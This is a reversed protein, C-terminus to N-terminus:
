VHSHTDEINYPGKKIVEHFVGPFIKTLNVKITIDEAPKSGWVTFPISIDKTILAGAGIIVNHAIIIGPLITAGGGVYVHHGLTPGQLIIDKDIGMYTDNMTSVFPGFFCNDGIIMNGTIHVNSNIKVNNGIVVNQEIVSMRGILVNDGIICGERISAGDAIFCNKGIKSGSYVVTDHCVITGEGFITRPLVIHKGTKRSIPHRNITGHNIINNKTNDNM